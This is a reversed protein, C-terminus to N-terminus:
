NAIKEAARLKASRSRPNEKTEEEQPGIPKKTLVRLNRETKFFRKVISDELSHYSIIVLRGGINLIKTTQPLSEELNLLESNVVIRLAQFTRTAPNLKSKQKYKAYVESIIQALRKTSDIPEVQRASCIARAISRSFKEQGFTKIIEDLRREEFNNIIDSARVQLDKDMRMDLTGEQQFSFGRQGKEIQHSSLGLDFLVGKVKFFGQRKAIEAIQSFNGKALVLDQSKVRSELSKKVYDIAEQDRDIGLIRAGRELLQQTHGGGGITADIILDGPEPKLYQIVEQLLVPQHFKM